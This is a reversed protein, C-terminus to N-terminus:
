KHGFRSFFWVKKPRVYGNLKYLPTGGPIIGRWKRLFKLKSIDINWYALSKM